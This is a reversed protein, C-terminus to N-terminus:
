SGKGFRAGAMQSVREDRSQKEQEESAEKCDICLSTVPRAMLRKYGIPEECDECMDLSDEDLRTIAKRIKGLLKKERDRLRLDTSLLEESVSQDISDGRSAEAERDMNM